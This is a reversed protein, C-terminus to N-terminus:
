ELAFMVGRGHLFGSPVCIFYYVENSARFGFAESDVNGNQPKVANSCQPFSQPTEIHISGEKSVM